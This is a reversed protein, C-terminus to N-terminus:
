APGTSLRCQTRRARARNFQGVTPQKLRYVRRYKVCLDRLACLVGLFATPSPYRLEGPLDRHGRRLAVSNTGCIDGQLAAAQGMTTPDCASPRSLPLHPMGCAAARCCAREPNMKMRTVAPQKTTLLIPAGLKQNRTNQTKRPQNKRM